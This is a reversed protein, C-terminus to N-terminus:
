TENSGSKFEYNVERRTSSSVPWVKPHRHVMLGCDRCDREYVSVQSGCGPCRSAEYMWERQQRGMVEFADFDAFLSFNRVVRAVYVWLFLEHFFGYFGAFVVGIVWFRVSRFRGFMAVMLMFVVATFWVALSSYILVIQLMDPAPKELALRM